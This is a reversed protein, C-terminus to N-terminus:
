FEATFGFNLLPGGFDYKGVNVIERFEGILYVRNIGYERDLSLASFRDFYTLNLGAGAAAYLGASGAFKPGLGDDRFEGFPFLMGGGTGYPVILQKDWVQLRYIAGVSLPVVALSFTEPPSNRIDQPQIEPHLYHGHGQAFFMGGGATIGIKGVGIRWIQWEYDFFLMLNSSQQYNDSFSGSPSDPNQLNAPSFFGFHLSGARKQESPKVDYIYTRDKTIEVLGKDALPHKVETEGKHKSWDFFPHSDGESPETMNSTAAPHSSAAGANPVPTTSKPASAAPAASTTPVPAEDVFFDDEADNQAFAPAMAVVALTVIM